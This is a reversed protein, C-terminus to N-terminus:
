CTYRKKSYHWLPVFTGDDNLVFVTDDLNTKRNNVAKAPFTSGGTNNNTTITTVCKNGQRESM